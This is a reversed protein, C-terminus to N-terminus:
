LELTWLLGPPRNRINFQLVPSLSFGVRECTIFQSFVSQLSVVNSSVSVSRINRQCLFLSFLFLNIQPWCSKLQLDSLLSTYSRKNVEQTNSWSAMHGGIRHIWFPCLDKCGPNPLTTWVLFLQGSSSFRCTSIKNLWVQSSSLHPAWLCKPLPEARTTESNSLRNPNVPNTAVTM